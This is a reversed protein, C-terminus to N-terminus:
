MLDTLVDLALPLHEKLSSTYFCTEERSTYANLEGGVAELSRAIDYADRTQTGKFVMHEVFHAAGVIDEPEDRTGMTVTIGACVARSAPHHETLIRVGNELVTKRFIPDVEFTKM